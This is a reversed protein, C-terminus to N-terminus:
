FCNLLVYLSKNFAILHLTLLMVNVRERSFFNKEVSLFICTGSINLIYYTFHFKITDTKRIETYKLKLMNMPGIYKSNCIEPLHLFCILFLLCQQPSSLTIFSMNYLGRFNIKSEGGRGGGFFSRLVRHMNEYFLLFKEDLLYM